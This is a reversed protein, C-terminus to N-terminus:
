TAADVNTENRQQHSWPEPDKHFLSLLVPVTCGILAHQNPLESMVAASELKQWVKEAPGLDFRGYTTRLPFGAISFRPEPSRFSQAACAVQVGIGSIFHWGRKAALGQLHPLIADNGDVAVGLLEACASNTVVPSKRSRAKM